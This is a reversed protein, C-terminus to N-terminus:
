RRPEFGFIKKIIAIGIRGVWSWVWIALLLSMAWYFGPDIEVAYTNFLSLVLDASVKGPYFFIDSNKM